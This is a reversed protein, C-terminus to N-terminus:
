KGRFSKDAEPPNSASVILPRFKEHLCVFGLIDAYDACDTGFVATIVKKGVNEWTWRWTRVKITLVILKTIIIIFRVWGM